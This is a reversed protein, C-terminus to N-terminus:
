LYEGTAYPAFRAANRFGRGYRRGRHARLDHRSKAWPPGGPVRSAAGSRARARTILAFAVVSGVILKKMHSVREQFDHRITSPIPAAPAMDRDWQREHYSASTFSTHIVRPPKTCRQQLSYNPAAPAQQDVKTGSMCHRCKPPWVAVNRPRESATGCAMTRGRVRHEHLAPLDLRVVGEVFWTCHRCALAADRVLSGDGATIPSSSWM